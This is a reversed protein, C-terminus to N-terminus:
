NEMAVIANYLERKSIQYEKAVKKIAEKKDMGSEVYSLVAEEPSVSFDREDESAGEVLIVFEGKLTIEDFHALAEDLTTRLFTEFQKTLERAITVKRNGLGKQLAELMSQLRHPAEYFLLTGRYGKIRELVEERNKNRKPLFGVFTFSTTDLGSAILATLAANAGPLPVISIDEAICKAVLDSGPDSIAPMGADSCLAIHQGEQLLSVLYNGAEEKNHEHYSILRKKIELYHLLQGTHRTDEAAVADVERLIRIARLTMDEMNGIPTPVLYLTGKDSVDM